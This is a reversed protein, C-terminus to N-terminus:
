RNEVAQMLSYEGKLEDLVGRISDREDESRCDFTFIRSNQTAEDKNMIQKATPVVDVVTDVVTDVILNFFKTNDVEVEVGLHKVRERLNIIM